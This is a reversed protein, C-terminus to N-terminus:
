QAFSRVYRVLARIEADTLEDAYPNKNRLEKGDKTATKIVQVAEEDTWSAQYALDTFDKVGARRGARTQGRGDNGHCSACESRFFEVASDDLQAADIHTAPESVGLMLVFLLGPLLLSTALKM